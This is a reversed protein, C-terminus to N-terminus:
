FSNSQSPLFSWVLFTASPLIGSQVRQNLSEALKQRYAEDEQTRMQFGSPTAQGSSSNEAFTHWKRQIGSPRPYRAANASNSSPEAVDHMPVIDVTQLLSQNVADLDFDTIPLWSAWETDLLGDGLTPWGDFDARAPEGITHPQPVAFADDNNYIAGGTNVPVNPTGEFAPTAVTPRENAVESQPEPQAEDPIPRIASHHEGSSVTDSGMEGPQSAVEVWSQNRAGHSRSHRLLTDRQNVCPNM